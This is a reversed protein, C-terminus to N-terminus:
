PIREFRIGGYEFGAIAGGGDRQFQVPEPGDLVLWRAGFLNPAAPALWKRMAGARLQLRDDIRAITVVVPFRASGYRGVYGDLTEIDPAWAWGQWRDSTRAQALEDRRMALFEAAREPYVRQRLRAWDQADPADTLFQLYQVIVRSTLWGTMNDSNSLVGIGVGLDPSFAMMSRAGTYAGGHIYLLNGAFDCRSWGFAYGGCPLEYANRATPDVDAGQRHAAALLDADFGTPADGGLHLQLWRALDRPSTMMGGAAQMIADAKPPVQEWGQREGLWIHNFALETADFDSTRASTRTLGLPAFVVERLWDQWAKGTAHHLIAAYLNYGINDYLFGDDRRSGFSALLGPYAASDPSRVYAELWTVTEARIPVRHNLLDALTWDAPDLGGPLGLGPWHDALTGELALVGSRDLRHALLGMYAKTQSAIYMPTDGTLPAGTSANRQGRLYELLVNDRDVVVVAFGPGLAPIGDLFAELRRAAEAPTSAGTPTAPAPSILAALILM